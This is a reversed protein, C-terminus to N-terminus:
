EKVTFRKSVNFPMDVPADLDIKNYKLDLVIQKKAAKSNINVMQPVEKGNIQAFDAYTVKLEQGANADKLQLQSVKKTDKFLMIFSLLGSTGSLQLEPVSVIDADATVLESIANGTFLSELTKYNIQKNTFQHIYSFPKKMYVSQIRNIIRISDPTILARGVELGALATVSVWIAQDRKIRIHMTVDNRNNDIMLDAKARVAFTEFMLQSAKIASITEAKSTNVAPEVQATEKVPVKKRSACSTVTLLLVAAVISNLINRKM